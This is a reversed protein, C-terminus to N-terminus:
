GRVELGVHNTETGNKNERCDAELKQLRLALWRVMRGDVSGNNPDSHIRDIGVVFSGPIGTLKSTADSGTENNAFVLNEGVCV